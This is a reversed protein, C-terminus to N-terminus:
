KRHAAHAWWQQPYDGAGQMVRWVACGLARAARRWRRLTARAPRAMLVVKGIWVGAKLANSYRQVWPYQRKALVEKM